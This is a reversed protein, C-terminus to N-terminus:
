RFQAHYRDIFDQCEQETFPVKVKEQLEQFEEYTLPRAPHSEQFFFRRSLPDVLQSVFHIRSLIDKDATSLWYRIDDALEDITSGVRHSSAFYRGSEIEQLCLLACYDNPPRGDNYINAIIELQPIM